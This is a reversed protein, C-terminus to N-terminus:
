LINIQHEWFSLKMRFVKIGQVPQNVAFPSQPNKIVLGTQGENTKENISEMRIPTVNVNIKRNFTQKNKAVEQEYLATVSM